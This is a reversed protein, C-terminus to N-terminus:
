EVLNDGFGFDEFLNGTRSSFTRWCGLNSFYTFERESETQKTTTKCM